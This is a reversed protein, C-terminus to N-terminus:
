RYENLEDDISKLIKEKDVKPLTRVKDRIHKYLNELDKYSLRGVHKANKLEESSYIFARHCGINSDYALFDNNKKLIPLCEYITRNETNILLFLNPGLNVCISFKSGAPIIDKNYVYLVDGIRM